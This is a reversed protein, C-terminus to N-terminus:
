YPVFFRKSPGDKDVPEWYSARGRDLRMSLIDKGLLRLLIGVPTVIVYFTLFMVLFTMVTGLKEAFAMWIREPKRLAGPRLASLAYFVLALVLLTLSMKTFAHRKWLGIATFVLSALTMVQGFERLESLTKEKAKM